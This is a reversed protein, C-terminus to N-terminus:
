AGADPGGDGLSGIRGGPVFLMDVCVVTSKFDFMRSVPICVSGMMMSLRKLLNGGCRRGEAIEDLGPVGSGPCFRSTNSKLSAARVFRVSILVATGEARCSRLARSSFVLSLISFRYGPFLSLPGSALSLCNELTLMLLGKRVLLRKAPNSPGDDSSSDSASSVSSSCCWECNEVGISDERLTLLPLTKLLGGVGTGSSFSGEGEGARGDSSEILEWTRM